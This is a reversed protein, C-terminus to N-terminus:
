KTISRTLVKSLPSLNNLTELRRILGMAENVHPGPLVLKAYTKFKEEFELQSMPNQPHGKSQIITRSYSNGERLKVTVKCPEYAPFFPAVEPDVITRVKRAFKLVDEDRISKESFAEVGLDGTLVAFSIVYPMSFQAATPTGPEYIDHMKVLKEYGGIVIEKVRDVDFEYQRKLELIGDIAAHFAKCCPYPKFITQMISFGEGLGETLRSLDKKDSYARLYGFDGEVVTTPGTFGIKALDAAILGSQAARGAGFRKTMIGEAIGEVIGAAQNGAIGLANAMQEASLRLLNGAAAAAGFPGNTATPFFGRMLHSETAADGVRNMVEYGAVVAAILEQGSSGEREATALAVPVVVCGPHHIAPMHVDDVEFGHAMTGNALAANCAAVKKGTGVVVSEASGGMSRAYESIMRGWPQISGLFTCGLVDMICVKTHEIVSSPLASYKLTSSFAALQRTPGASFIDADKLKKATM